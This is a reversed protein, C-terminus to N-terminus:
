LTPPQPYHARVIDACKSLTGKKAAAYAAAYAADSARKVDVIMIGNEGRAWQEAIEICRLPRNEGAPVRAIALRACACAALVLKKRADSQPPGSQKGLLWLM